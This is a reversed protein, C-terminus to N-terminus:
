SVEGEGQFVRTMASQGEKGNKRGLRAVDMGLLPESNNNCTTMGTLIWLKWWSLAM